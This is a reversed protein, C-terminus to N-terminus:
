QRRMLRSEGHAFFHVHAEKLREELADEGGASKLHGLHFGKDRAVDVIGDIFVLRPHDIDDKVRQSNGL